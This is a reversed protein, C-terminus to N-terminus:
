EADVAAVARRALDADISEEYTLKKPIWGGAVFVEQLHDFTEPLMVPTRSWTGMELYRGIIRTLLDLDLDPFSPSVLTAIEAASHSHVYRQARYFARLFAEVVQPQERVLRWSTIYSSFPLEGVLPGDPVVATAVGDRLLQEAVPQVTQIFDTEGSHLAAIAEPVRVGERVDIADVNVGIRRLGYRLCLWPTPAEGFVTLRRGELARWDFTGHHRHSLVFFGSLRNVEAVNVLQRGTEDGQYEVTRLAGCVAVDSEGRLISEVTKRGANTVGTTPAYGEEELTGLHLMVFHPTYFPVHFTEMLRLPRLGARPNETTPLAM